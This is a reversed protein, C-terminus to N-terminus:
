FRTEEEEVSKQIAALEAGHLFEVKVIDESPVTRGQGGWSTSCDTGAPRGWRALYIYYLAQEFLNAEFADRVRFKVICPVTAARYADLDFGLDVVVEPARFFHNQAGDFTADRVLSGFPGWSGM